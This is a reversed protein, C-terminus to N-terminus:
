LGTTMDKDSQEPTSEKLAGATILGDCRAATCILKESIHARARGDSDM